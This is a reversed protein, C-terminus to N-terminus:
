RTPSFMTCVEGLHALLWFHLLDLHKGDERSVFKAM